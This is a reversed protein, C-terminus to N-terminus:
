MRDTFSRCLPLRIISLLPLRTCMSKPKRSPVDGPPLMPKSVAAKKKKLGEVHRKHVRGRLHDHWQEEGMIVKKCVDCVFKKNRRCTVRGGCQLSESQQEWFAHNVKVAPLTGTMLHEVVNVAPNLVVDDWRDLQSTDLQILHQM